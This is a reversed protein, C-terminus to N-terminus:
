WRWFDAAPRRVKFEVPVSGIREMLLRLADAANLDEPEQDGWGEYRAAKDASVGSVV